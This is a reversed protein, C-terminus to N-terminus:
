SIVDFGSQMLATYLSYPTPFCLDTAVNDISNTCSGIFDEAVEAVNIKGDSMIDYVSSNIRGLTATSLAKGAINQGIKSTFGALAVTAINSKLVTNLLNRSSKAVKVNYPKVSVKDREEGYVIMLYADNELEVNADQVM